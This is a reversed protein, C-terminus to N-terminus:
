DDGNGGEEMASTRGAPSSGPRPSSGGLKRPGGLGATGPRTPDRAWNGAPNLPCPVTIDVPKHLLRLGPSVKRDKYVVDTGKLPVEKWNEGDTTKKVALERSVHRSWTYPLSVVAPVPLKLGAPSLQVVHSVLEENHALASPALHNTIQCTVPFSTVAQIDVKILCALESQGDDNQADCPFTSWIGPNAPAIQDVDDDEEPPKNLNIEERERSSKKKEATSPTKTKTTAPPRDESTTATKKETSHKTDIEVLTSKNDTKEKSDNDKSDGDKKDADKKETEQVSKEDPRVEKVKDKESEKENDAVKEETELPKDVLINESHNNAVEDSNSNSSESVSEEKDKEETAKMDEPKEPEDEICELHNLEQADELIAATAERAVDAVTGEAKEAVTMAEDVSKRLDGVSAEKTDDKGHHEKACRDRGGALRLGDRTGSLVGRVHRIRAVLQGSERACEELVETLEQLLGAVKGRSLGARGAAQIRANERELQRALAEVQAVVQRPQLAPEEGVTASM